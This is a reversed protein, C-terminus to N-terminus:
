RSGYMCLCDCFWTHGPGPEYVCSEDNAWCTVNPPPNLNEQIKRFCYQIFNCYGDCTGGGQGGGYMTFGLIAAEMDTCEGEGELILDYADYDVVSPCFYYDDLAFVQSQLPGMVVVGLILLFAVNRITRM